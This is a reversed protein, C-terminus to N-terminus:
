QERIVKGLLWKALFDSTRIIKSILLCGGIVILALCFTVALELLPNPHTSFFAGVMTLNVPLVLLHILYIDLTRIGIYQLSKGLLSKKGLKDKNQYFLALLLLTGSFAILILLLTQLLKDPIMFYLINGSFFLIVLVALFLSNHCGKLFSEKFTAATIGLAFFFYYRFHVISLLGNITDNKLPNYPSVLFSAGLYILLGLTLHLISFAKDSLKLGNKFVLLLSYILFYFPLLITFWFGGFSVDFILRHISWGSFLSWILMFFLTPLLIHLFKKGTWRVLASPTENGKRAGVFGSIFFFAPMMFLFFADNFSFTGSLGITYLKVHWMVVLIM